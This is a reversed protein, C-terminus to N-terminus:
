PYPVCPLSIEFSAGTGPGNSSAEVRGGHEGEVISKVLYLGLGTGGTTSYGAQFMSRLAESSFGCGYDTVRILVTDETKDHGLEHCLETTIRIPQKRGEYSAKMANVLLNVIVQKIQDPDALVPHWPLSFAQGLREDKAKHAQNYYLM